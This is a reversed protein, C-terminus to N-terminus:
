FIFFRKKRSKNGEVNVLFEKEGKTVYELSPSEIKALVEFLAPPDKSQWPSDLRKVPIATEASKSDGSKTKLNKLPSDISMAPMIVLNGASSTEKKQDEQKSEKEYWVYLAVRDSIKNLLEVAAKSPQLSPLIKSVLTEGSSINLKQGKFKKDVNFKGVSIWEKDGLATITLEINILGDTGDQKIKADVQGLDLTKYKPRTILVAEVGNLVPNLEETLFTEVVQSVKLASELHLPGSINIEGLNELQIKVRSDIDLLSDSMARSSLLCGAVYMPANPTYALFFNREMKETLSNELIVKVPIHKPITGLQAIQGFPGDFIVSGLMPGLENEQIIKESSHFNPLVTLVESKWFPLAVVGTVSFGSHGLMYLIEPDNPNAMIVTGGTCVPDAGWAECFIYTEGPKISDAMGPWDFHASVFKNPLQLTKTIFGLTSEIPTALAYPEKSFPLAAAISGIIRDDVYLPSGSMGAVANANELISKGNKDKPGGSLYVVIYTPFSRYIGIVEFDFREAKDGSFVTLGYGKDGKKIENLPKVQISQAGLSISLIFALIVKALM